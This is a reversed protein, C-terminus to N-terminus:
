LVTLTRYPPPQQELRWVTCVTVTIGRSAKNIAQLHSVYCATNIVDDYTVSAVSSTHPWATTEPSPLGVAAAAPLCIEGHYLEYLQILTQDEGFMSIEANFWCLSPGAPVSLSSTSPPPHHPPNIAPPSTIRPADTSEHAGQPRVVSSWRCLAPAFWNNNIMGANVSTAPSPCWTIAQVGNINAM